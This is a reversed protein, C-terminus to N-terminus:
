YYTREAMLATLRISGDAPVLVTARAIAYGIRNVRVRYTGPRLPAFRFAGDANPRIREVMHGTTDEVQAVADALVALTARTVVRGTISGADGSDQVWAIASEGRREARIPVIAQMVRGQAAAVPALVASLLVTQWWRHKWAMRM